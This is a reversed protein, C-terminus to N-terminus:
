KYLFPNWYSRITVERRMDKEVVWLRQIERSGLLWGYTSRVRGIAIRITYLEEYSLAFGKLFSFMSHVVIETGPDLVVGAAISLLVDACGDEIARSLDDMGQVHDARFPSYGKGSPFLTVDVENGPRTKGVVVFSDSPLARKTAAKIQQSRERLAELRVRAEGTLEGGPHKAIFREYATTSDASKTEAWDDIVNKEKTITRGEGMLTGGVGENRVGGRGLTTSCGLLVAIPLVLLPTRYFV